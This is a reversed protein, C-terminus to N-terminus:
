ENLRLKLKERFTLYREEETFYYTTKGVKLSYMKSLDPSNVPEQKEDMQYLYNLQRAANNAIM